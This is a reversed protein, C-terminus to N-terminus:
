YFSVTTFRYPWWRNFFLSFFIRQPNWWGDGLINSVETFKFYFFRVLQFYLIACIECKKTMNLACSSLIWNTEKRHRHMGLAVERQPLGIDWLCLSEEGEAGRVGHLRNCLSPPVWPQLPMLSPPDYCNNSAIICLCWSLLSSSSDQQMFFSPAHCALQVHEAHWYYQIYCSLDYLM